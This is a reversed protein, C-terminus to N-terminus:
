RALFRGDRGVEIRAGAPSPGNIAPGNRADHDKIYGAGPGAPRQIPGVLRRNLPRLGRSYPDQAVRAGAICLARGRRDLRIDPVVLGPIVDSVDEEILGGAVAAADAVVPLQAIVYVIPPRARHHHQVRATIGVPPVHREAVDHHCILIGIGAVDMQAHGAPSGPIRCGLERVCDVGGRVRLQDAGDAQRLPSVGTIDVHGIAASAIGVARQRAIPRSLIRYDCGSTIVLAPSSCGARAPPELAVPSSGLKCPNRQGALGSTFLTGDIGSSADASCFQGLDAATRSGWDDTYEANLVLKGAQVYPPTVIGCTQYFNCEEDLLFDATPELAKAFAPDNDGNKQGWALGLSHAYAGLKNDYAINQAETIKYNTSDTYSDDIDPEIADFGKAACQQRIMSEIMSVTSAANINLYYESYGPMKRGLDGAAKLQAYYSLPIGEAGATYYNGASGIEIYCIVMDGRAHLAAITSAPNDIGDIGYVTPNPGARGAANLAGTGMDAASNVNLGHDLEWQFGPGNNPGTGMPHWWTLAAPRPTPSPAASQNSDGYFAAALLLSLGGLIIAQKTM